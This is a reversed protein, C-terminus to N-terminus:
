WEICDLEELTDAGHELEYDDAIREGGEFKYIPFEGFDLGKFVGVYGDFTKIYKPFQESM